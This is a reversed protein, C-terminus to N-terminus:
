IGRGRPDIWRHEEGNATGLLQKADLTVSDIWTDNLRGIM